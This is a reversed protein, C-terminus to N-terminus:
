SASDHASVRRVMDVLVSAVAKPQELPLAHGGEVRLRVCGPVAAAIDDGIAEYKPDTRGTVMAMPMHLEGLRDWMPEHAGQGLVRLQHELREISTKAARRAVEDAAVDLTSFLPQTLWRRLFEEVGVRRAEAALEEDLGARQARTAEDAIGASASVLVLGRVLGPADLAGRLCLRGGMSYGCYVGAGGAEVVSHATAAFDLGDPVEPTLIEIPVADVLEPLHRCVAEWSQSSQTFGHLLVLRM